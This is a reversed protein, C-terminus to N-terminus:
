LIHVKERQKFYHNIRKDIKNLLKTRVGEKECISYRQVLQLLEESESLFHQLECILMDYDIKNSKMKKIKDTYSRMMERASAVSITDYVEEDIKNFTTNKRCELCSGIYITGSSNTEEHIIDMYPASCCCVSYM